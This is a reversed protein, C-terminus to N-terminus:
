TTATVYILLPEGETPPMLILAKTLLEKLGDLAVQAELTWAFRDM